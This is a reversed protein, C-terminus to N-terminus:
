SKTRHKLIFLARHLEYIQEDDLDHMFAVEELAEAISMDQERILDAADEYANEIQILEYDNM